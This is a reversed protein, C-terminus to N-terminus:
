DTITAPVRWNSPIMLGPAADDYDCGPKCRIYLLWIRGTARDVLTAPNGASWLGGVNEIVKLASWTKGADTSRRCVLDVAQGKEGPDGM